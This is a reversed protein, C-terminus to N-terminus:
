FIKPPTRGELRARENPNPKESWVNWVETICYNAWQWMKWEVEFNGFIKEEKRGTYTDIFVLIVEFEVGSHDEFPKFWMDAQRMVFRGNWLWDEKINKNLKCVEKNLARQYKKRNLSKLERLGM